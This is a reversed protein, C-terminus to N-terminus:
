DRIRPCHDGFELRVATVVPADDRDILYTTVKVVNSWDAGSATLITSINEFVQKAKGAADGPAVLVGHVDRAVQGAVYITNGARLGHVYTAAHYM